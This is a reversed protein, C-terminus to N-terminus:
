QEEQNECYLTAEKYIKRLEVNLKQWIPDHSEETERILGLLLHVSGISNQGFSSAVEYTLEITSKTEPNLALRVSSRASHRQKNKLLELRLGERDVEAREFVLQVACENLLGLLFHNTNVFESGEWKAEGQAHYIAARAQSSFRQWM